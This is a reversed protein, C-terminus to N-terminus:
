LGRSQELALKLKGRVIEEAEWQLEPLDL